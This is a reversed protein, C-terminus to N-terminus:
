LKRELLFHVLEPNDHLLDTLRDQVRYIWDHEAFKRECIFEADSSNIAAHLLEHVLTIQEQHLSMGPRLQILHQDSWTEGDIMPDKFPAVTITWVEKGITFHAPPPQQAAAPACLLLLIYLFRKM